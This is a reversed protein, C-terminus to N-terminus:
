LPPSQGRCGSVATFAGTKEIALSRPTSTWRPGSIFDVPSTIPPDVLKPTANAFACNATPWRNGSLPVANTLTLLSSLSARRNCSVKGREAEAQRRGAARRGVQASPRSTSTTNLTFSPRGFMASSITLRLTANIMLVGSPRSDNKSSRATRQAAIICSTGHMVVSVAAGGGNRGNARHALLPEADARQLVVICSNGRAADLRPAFIAERWGYGRRRLLGFRSTAGGTLPKKTSRAEYGPCTALNATDHRTRVTAAM